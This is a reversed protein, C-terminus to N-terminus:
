DVDGRPRSPQGTPLASGEQTWGLRSMTPM